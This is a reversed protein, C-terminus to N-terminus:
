PAGLRTQDWSRPEGAVEDRVQRELRAASLRRRASPPLRRVQPHREPRQQDCRGRIEHVVRPVTWVMAVSLQRAVMGSAPAGVRDYLRDVSLGARRGSAPWLRSSRPSLSAVVRHNCAYGLRPPRRDGREDLNRRRISTPRYGGRIEDRLLDALMEGLPGVFTM